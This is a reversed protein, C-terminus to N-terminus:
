IPITNQYFYTLGSDRSKYLEKHTNKHLSSHLRFRPLMTNTHMEWLESVCSIYIVEVYKCFIEIPVNIKADTVTYYLSGLYNM